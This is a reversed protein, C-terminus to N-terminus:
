PLVSKVVTTDSVDWSDGGTLPNRLHWSLSSMGGSYYQNLIERRIKSFPVNDLSVTDGLEIHGLDFSIVASYDGCVSKVDSRGEEGDWGIGSLHTFSFGEITSHHWSYGPGNDGGTKTDPSLQVLGFPTCSGPFTKGLGHGSKGAEASTSAGIITNVYDVPEKQAFSLISFSILLALLWSRGHKM